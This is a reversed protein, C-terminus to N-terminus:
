TRVARYKVELKGQEILSILHYRFEILCYPEVRMRLRHEDKYETFFRNFPERTRSGWYVMHLFDFFTVWSFQTPAHRLMAAYEDDHCVAAMLVAAVDDDYEYPKFILM